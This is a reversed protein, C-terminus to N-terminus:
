ALLLIGSVFCKLMAPIMRSRDQGDLLPFTDRRVV